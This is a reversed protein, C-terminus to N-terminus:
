ADESRPETPSLAYVKSSQKDTTAWYADSPGAGCGAVVIVPADQGRWTRSDLRPSGEPKTSTMGSVATSSCDREAGRSASQTWERWLSMLAAMVVPGLFLGLLGFTELGGLIELLVWLFPLRAAGGILVPRVFHDAVFVVSFGFIVVAIAAGTSGNALLYLGASCFAIPAGFPIVAVVGTLAAIPVPHPLGAFAYAFGILVGEGLGVLVLGTVTGHVADIMHYAVREGSPGLMRHSLLVLERCLADGDRFLFFLTLLTFGFIILRHVVEGGIARASGSPIHSFLRGLLQQMTQPDSLDVAVMRRDPLRDGPPEGAM